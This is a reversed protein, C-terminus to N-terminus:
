PTFKGATKATVISGTGAAEQLAGTPHIGDRTPTAKVVTGAPYVAGVTGEGVTFTVTYPDSGTVSGVNKVVSTAGGAGIVIDDGVIPPTGTVTISTAGTTTDATLTSDRGLEKWVPSSGSSDLWDGTVDVWADVDPHTKLYDVFQWRAGGPYINGGAVSQNATASWKSTTADSTVTNCFTQVLKPEPQGTAHLSKQYPWSIDAAAKLSAYGSGVDNNLHECAIVNFPFWGLAAMAANRMDFYGTGARVSVFSTNGISFQGHAMRGVGPTDNDLGIAIFATNPRDGIQNAVNQNAGQGISDGQLCVVSANNADAGEAVVMIPGYAQGGFTPTGFTGGTLFSAQSVSSQVWRDNYKGQIPNYGVLRFASGPPVWDANIIIISSNAAILVPLPDSWRFLDSGFVFSTAGNFTLQYRVGDIIACVGEVLHAPDGAIEYPWVNTTPTYFNAMCVRLNKQAYNPTYFVQQAAQYASGTTSTLASTLPKTRNTAFRYRAPNLRLAELATDSLRAM